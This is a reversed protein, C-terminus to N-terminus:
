SGGSRAPPQTSADAVLIRSALTRALTTTLFVLGLAVPPSVFAAAIALTFGFVSIAAYKDVYTGSRAHLEELRLYGALTAWRWLLWLSVVVLLLNIAYLALAVPETLHSGLLAATAPILTVWLLASLNAWVVRTDALFVFRFCTRHTNWFQGIVLFSLLYAVLSPVMGLLEGVLQRDRVTDAIHPVVDLVLLTIAISFVGDSLSILRDRSYTSAGSSTQSTVSKRETV